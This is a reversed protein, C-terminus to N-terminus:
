YLAFTARARTVPARSLFALVADAGGMGDFTELAEEATAMLETVGLKPDSGFSVTKGNVSTSVLRLGSGEDITSTFQGTIVAVLVARGNEVAVRLLSRIFFNPAAM